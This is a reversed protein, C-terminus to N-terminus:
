RWRSTSARRPRSRRLASVAVGAGPRVQDRGTPSGDAAFAAKVSPGLAQRTADLSREAVAEVRVALRRPTAFTRAAGHGLRAGDLGSLVLTRLQEVAPEVAGAPLEETGIEFLLEDSV